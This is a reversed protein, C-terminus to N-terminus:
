GRVLSRSERKVSLAAYSFYISSIIIYFYHEGPPSINATHLAFFIAVQPTSAVLFLRCSEKFTFRMKFIIISVLQAIFSLFLLTGVYLGFIFGILLPYVLWEAVLKM